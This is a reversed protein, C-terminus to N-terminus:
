AAATTWIHGEHDGARVRCRRNRRLHSRASGDQDALKSGSYKTLVLTNRGNPGVAENEPHAGHGPFRATSLRVPIIAMEKKRHKAFEFGTLGLHFIDYSKLVDIDQYFRVRSAYMDEPKACTLIPGRDYLSGPECTTSNEPNLEICNHWIRLSWSAVMADAIARSTPATVILKREDAVDDEVALRRGDPGIWEYYGHKKRIEFMTGVERDSRRMAKYGKPLGEGKEHELRVIRFGSRPFCLTKLGLNGATSQTVPDLCYPFGKSLISPLHKLDFIHRNRQTVLPTGDANTRVKRTVRSFSAKYEGHSPQRIDQSLEYLTTMGSTQACICQERLVLIVPQVVEDAESQNATIYPPPNEAM